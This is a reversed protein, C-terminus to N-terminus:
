SFKKRAMESLVMLLVLGVVGMIPVHPVGGGGVQRTGFDPTWPTNGRVPNVSDAPAFVSDTFSYGTQQWGSPWM